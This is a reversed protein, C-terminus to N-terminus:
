PYPTTLMDNTEGNKGRDTSDLSPDPDIDTSLLVTVLYDQHSPIEILLVTSTNIHDPTIDNEILSITSLKEHMESSHKKM